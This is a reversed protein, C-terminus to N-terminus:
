YVDLEVIKIEYMLGIGLLLAAAQLSKKFNEAKERDSFFKKESFLCQQHALDTYIGWTVKYIKM